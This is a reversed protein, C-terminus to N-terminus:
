QAVDTYRLCPGSFPSQPVEVHLRVAPSQYQGLKVYQNRGDLYSHIRTLPIAIVGFESQLRQLLVEHDVTDFAASLDLGILVTLQKDDAATYVGDLVDLLATDTSHVKMYASQCQSFNASNLLHPPLRTLVLREM